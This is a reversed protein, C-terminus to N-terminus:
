PFLHAPLHPEEVQLHHRAVVLEAGGAVVAGAVLEGVVEGDNLGRAAEAHAAEAAEREAGLAGVGGAEEEAGRPPEAHRQLRAAAPRQAVRGEPRHEPAIAVQAHVLAAHEGVVVDVQAAELLDLDLADGLSGEHQPPHFIFKQLVLYKCNLEFPSAQSSLNSVTIM